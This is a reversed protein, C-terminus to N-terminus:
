VGTTKNKKKKKKKKKKDNKHEENIRKNTGRSPQAKQNYGKRPIRMKNIELRFSGETHQCHRAYSSKM